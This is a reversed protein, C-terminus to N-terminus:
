TVSRLSTAVQKMIFQTDIRKSINSHDNNGNAGLNGIFYSDRGVCRGYRVEFRIYNQRNVGSFETM